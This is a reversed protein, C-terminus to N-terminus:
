APVPLLQSPLLSPPPPASLLIQMHLIWLLVVGLGSWQPLAAGFAINPQCFYCPRPKKSRLTQRLVKSFSNQSMVFQINLIKLVM